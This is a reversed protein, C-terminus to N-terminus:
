ILNDIITDINSTTKMYTNSNTKMDKDTNLNTKIRDRIYTTKINRNSDIQM